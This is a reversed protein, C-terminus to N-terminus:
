GAPRGGRPSVSRSRTSPSRGPPSVTSRLRVTPTGGWGADVALDLRGFGVALSVGSATATVSDRCGPSRGSGRSQRRAPRDQALVAIGDSPWRRPSTASHGAFSADGAWRPCRPCRRGCSCPPRRPPRPDPLRAVLADLLGAAARRRRRGGATGLGGFRPLLVIPEAAGGVDPPHPGAVSRRAASGPRCRCRAGTAAWRYTSPSRGAFDPLATTLDARDPRARRRARGPLRAPWRPRPVAARHAAVAPVAPRRTCSSGARCRLGAPRRRAARRGPRGAVRAPRRHPRRRDTAARGRGAPDLLRPRPPTLLEAIPGLQWGPGLRAVLAAGAMAAVLRGVLLLASSPPSRRATPAPVLTVPEAAGAPVLVLSGAATDWRLSAGVGAAPALGRRHGRAGGLRARRVARRRGGGAGGPQRHPPRHGTRRRPAPRPRQRDM